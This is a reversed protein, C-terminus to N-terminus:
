HIQMDFDTKGDLFEMMMADDHEVIKEILIAHYKEADAKLNEPIEKEIVDSGMNGEFYYAKMKLLDIVGEMIKKKEL